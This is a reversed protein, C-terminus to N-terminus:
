AVRAVPVAMPEFDGTQQLWRLWREAELIECGLRAALQRADFGDPHENALRVAARYVTQESPAFQLVPRM